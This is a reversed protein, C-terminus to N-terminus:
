NLKDNSYSHFFIFLHFHYCVDVDSNVSSQVDTMEADVDSNVSSYVDSVDTMEADVDSHM